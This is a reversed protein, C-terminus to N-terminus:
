LEADTAQEWDFADDDKEYALPNPGEDTTFVIIPDTEDPGALAERVFSEVHDMTYRSQDIFLQERTRDASEDETVFHGDEGFVYPDHPVLFHAFVFTRGPRDLTSELADFGALASDFQLEHPELGAVGVRIGVKALRSTIAPVM